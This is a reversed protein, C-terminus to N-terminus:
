GTSAISDQSGPTGSNLTKQVGRAIAVQRRLKALTEESLKKRRYPKALNFAVKVQRRDAPNFLATGEEEGNQTIDFHAAEVARRANGWGRPSDNLIMVGLRGDGNDFIQGRRCPIFQEGCEDRRLRLKHQEAFVEVTV